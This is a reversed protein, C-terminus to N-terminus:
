LKRLFNFVTDVPVVLWPAIRIRNRKGSLLKQRRCVSSVSYEDSRHVRQIGDEELSNRWRYSDDGGIRHPKIVNVQLARRVLLNRHGICRTDVAFCRRVNSHQKEQASRTARVLRLFQDSCSSPSRQSWVHQQAPLYAVFHQANKSHAFYPLRHRTARPPEPHLNM